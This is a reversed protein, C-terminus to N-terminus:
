ALPENKYLKIGSPTQYLLKLPLEDKTLLYDPSDASSEQFADQINGVAIDTNMFFGAVSSSSTGLQQYIGQINNKQISGPYKEDILLTPNPLTNHQNFWKGLLTHENQEWYTSSNYQIVAYSAATSLLFFAAIFLAFHKITLDRKTILVIMLTCAAAILSALTLFLLWSFPPNETFTGLFIKALSSKTIGLLTLSFNNAPFLAALTLQTGLLALITIVIITSSRPKQEVGSFALLVALPLLGEIYRGIPRGTFWPFSPHAPGGSSAYAIVLVFFFIALLSLQAALQSKRLAQIFFAPFIGIALILYAPYILLWNLFTPLFNSHRSASTVEKGYVGLIGSLSFGHEFIRAIVWPSIALIIFLYLWALRKRSLPHPHTRQLLFLALPLPFLALGHVKTLFAAAIAIGALLHWSTKQTTTSQYLFFLSWLVLPYFLNEAMIYSPFLFFSPILMSITAALLAKKKTLMSRALFFLPFLSSAMVLANILKMAAYVAQSDKLLYAPSLLLPYLPPYVEVPQQHITFEQQFFVSRALKSYYYEDSFLSPSSISLAALLQFLAIALYLM